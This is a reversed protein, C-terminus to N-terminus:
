AFPQVRATSQELLTRCQDVTLFRIPQRPVKPLTPERIVHHLRGDHVDSRSADWPLAKIRGCALAWEYFRMIQSLRKRVTSSQMAHKGAQRDFVDLSWGRYLAINSIGGREGNRPSTADWILGNAELWAFYDYLAEAYSQWTAPSRTRPNELAVWLLYDNPVEIFEMKETCIFPIGPRAQGAYVFDPTTYFLRM